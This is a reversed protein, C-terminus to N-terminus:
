RRVVGPVAVRTPHYLRTVNGNLAANAPDLVRVGSGRRFDLRKLDTSFTALTRANDVTFVRNTLDSITRWNTEDGSYRGFGPESGPAGIPNSVSRMVSM